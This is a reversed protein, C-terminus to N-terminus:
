QNEKMAIIFKITEDALRARDNSDSMLINTVVTIIGMKTISAEDERDVRDIILAKLYGRLHNAVSTASPTIGTELYMKAAPGKITKGGIIPSIGVVLPHRRVAESIEQISLIPGISVWPNSPCIIVADASTISEVVGPAPRAHDIGRLEVGEFKPQCKHKVFYEQFPLLGYETTQIYTSVMDDTMPLVSVKIGLAQCFSKTISSLAEGNNLRRTRELHLGLDRDGLQFWDPGGFKKITEYAAFADESVGWGTMPNAIGGLTYCVTDIDPCIKLGFHEFDDGTNVIVTCQDAPLIQSLGDVLKAGGVGGALAVINM